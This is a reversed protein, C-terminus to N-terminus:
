AENEPLSLSVMPDTSTSAPSSASPARHYIETTGREILAKSSGRV